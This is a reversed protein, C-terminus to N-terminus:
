SCPDALGVRASRALQQLVVALATILSKDADKDTQDIENAM